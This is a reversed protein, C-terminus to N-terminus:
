AFFMSEFIKSTTDKWTEADPILEVRTFTHPIPVNTM